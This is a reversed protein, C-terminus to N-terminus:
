IAIFIYYTTYLQCFKRTTTIIEGHLHPTAVTGLPCSRSGCSLLFLSAPQSSQYLPVCTLLLWSLQSWQWMCQIDHANMLDHLDFLCLSQNREDALAISRIRSSDKYTDKLQLETRYVLGIITPQASFRNSCFIQYKMVQIIM